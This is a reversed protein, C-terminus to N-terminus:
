FENRKRPRATLRARFQACETFFVAVPLLGVADRTYGQECHNRRQLRPQMASSPSFLTIFQSFTFPLSTQHVPPPFSTTNSFSPSITYTGPLPLLNYWICFDSRRWPRGVKTKGQFWISVSDTQSRREAGKRPNGFQLWPAFLSLPM